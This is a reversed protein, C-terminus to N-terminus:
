LVALLERFRANPLIGAGNESLEPRISEVFYMDVEGKNKANIKGRYHCVFFDKVLRYTNESINVKGVEGSSEMRSAVNVTDGWVDYAFKSKGIVGAILEGSNIGLRLEWYEQGQQRRKARKEEMFRLIDLGALVMDVPNHRNAEPIGGVCMYADGITKIKELGHRNIIEDFGTFCKELEEVLETPSMKEAFTTFGKFDTFLVSAREYYKVPAKGQTKLEEAVPRPLINLLLSETKEKEQALLANNKKKLANSRYLNVSLLTLFFVVAGGGLYLNNQYLKQVELAKAQLSLAQNLAAIQTKMREEREDLLSLEKNQLSFENTSAKNTRGSPGIETESQQLPAIPTASADRLSERLNVRLSRSLTKVALGQKQSNIKELEAQSEQLLQQIQEKKIHQWAVSDSALYQMIPRGEQALSVTPWLLCLILDRYGGWPWRIQRM